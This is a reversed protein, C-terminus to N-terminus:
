AGVPRLPPPALPLVPAPPAQSEVVLGAPTPTFSLQQGPALNSQAVPHPTLTGTVFSPLPASAPAPTSVATPAVPTPEAQVGAGAFARQVGAGKIAAQMEGESKPEVLQDLQFLNLNNVDFGKAALLEAINSEKRSPDAAYKTDTKTSGERNVTFNFGKNPDTVNGYEPNVDFRTIDKKVQTPAKLVKVQGDCPKGDPDSFVIVNFLFSFRRKFNESLEQDKPDESKRLKDGHACLTCSDGFMTGCPFNQLKGNVNFVHEIIEHYWRGRPSYAPLVRLQTLGKKLTYFRGAGSQAVDRQVFDNDNQYYTFGM